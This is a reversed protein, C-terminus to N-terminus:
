RAWAPRHRMHEVPVRQGVIRVGFSPDQAGHQDIGACPGLDVVEQPAVVEIVLPMTKDVFGASVEISVSLRDVSDGGCGPKSTSFTEFLGPAHGVDGLQELMGPAVPFTQSQAQMTYSM